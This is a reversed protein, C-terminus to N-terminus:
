LRIIVDKIMRHSCSSQSIIQARRWSGRVALDGARKRALSQTAPKEFDQLLLGGGCGVSSNSGCPIAISGGPYSFIFRRHARGGLCSNVPNCRCSVNVHNELGQASVVALQLHSLHSYDSGIAWLKTLAREAYIPAQMLYACVTFGVVIWKKIKQTRDPVRVAWGVLFLVVGFPVALAAIWEAQTAEAVIFAIVTWALALERLRIGIRPAGDEGVLAGKIGHTAQTHEVERGGTGMHRVQAM